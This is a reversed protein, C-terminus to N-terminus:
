ALRGVFDEKPSYETEVCNEEGDETKYKQKIDTEPLDQYYDEATEIIAKWRTVEEKTERTTLKRAKKALNIRLQETTIWKQFYGVISLPIIERLHGEDIDGQQIFKKIEDSCNNFKLRESVRSQTSDKARAIEKQTWNEKDKLRAYEAWIDVIPVVKHYEDNENDQAELQAIERDSYGEHLLLPVNDEPSTRRVAELRNGGAFVEYKDDSKYAWLARTVEFGNREIREALGRIDDEDRTKRTNFRSIVCDDINVYILTKKRSEDKIELQFDM